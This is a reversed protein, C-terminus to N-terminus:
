YGTIDAENSLVKSTYTHNTQKSPPQVHSQAMQLQLRQERFEPSDYNWKRKGPYIHVHIHACM